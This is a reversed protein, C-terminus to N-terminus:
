KRLQFGKGCREGREEYGAACLEGSVRRRIRDHCSRLVDAERVKEERLYQELKVKKICRLISRRTSDPLKERRLDLPLHLLQVFHDRSPVNSRSMVTWGGDIIVTLAGWFFFLCGGFASGVAARGM